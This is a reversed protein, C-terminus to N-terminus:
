CLVVNKKLLKKLFGNNYSHCEWVLVNTDFYKLLFGVSALLNEMREISDLYVLVLFTVDKLKTKLPYM